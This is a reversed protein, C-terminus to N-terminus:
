GRYERNGESGSSTMNLHVVKAIRLVLSKCSLEAVFIQATAYKKMSLRILGPCLSAQQYVSCRKKEKRTAPYM